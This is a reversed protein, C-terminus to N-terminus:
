AQETAPAVAPAAQATGPRWRPDADAFDAMYKQAIEQIAKNDKYATTVKMNACIELIAQMDEKATLIAAFCKKSMMKGGNGNMEYNAM